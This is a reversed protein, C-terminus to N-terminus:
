GCARQSCAVGPAACIGCSPNCCVSDINCTTLGCSQSAPYQIANDCRRDDCSAGPLACIGCSANCCVQGSNCTNPGCSVSEPSLSMGCVLQSCKQGPEVCTGCSANCCEKGPECSTAGCPVGAPAATRTQATPVPPPTALTAIVAPPIAVGQPSLASQSELRSELQSELPTSTQAPAASPVIVQVSPAPAPAPAVLAAPAAAQPSPRDAAVAEGLEQWGAKLERRDLADQRISETLIPSDRQSRWIVLAIVAIALALCLAVGLPALSKSHSPAQHQSITRMRWVSAISAGSQDVIKWRTGLQVRWVM